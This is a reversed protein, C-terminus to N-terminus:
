SSRRLKAIFYGNCDHLQPYFRQCLDLGRLGASGIFPTQPVVRFDQNRRLFKEIVFENEEPLISCTCYVISGSPEVHGAAENLISYQRSAYENVKGPTITWKMSPNRAFVGSNSCPPDVLITDAELNFPLNRADARIPHASTVGTRNMERRWHSLRRNSIDVSFIEGENHMTEALHSTKNGPAACVDAVISGERPSAVSGAVISALDQVVIEGSEFVKSRVMVNSSKEIRFATDIGQVKSGGLQSEIEMSRKPDPIKLRNLRLFSPLLTLNRRLMELAFARGFTRITREVFWVPHCTELSFRESETLSSEFVSLTGSAILAIAKEFPYVERWGLVQRAWEVNRRIDVDPRHEIYKLYALIELFRIVGHPARQFETRAVARRVTKELRNQFRTTEMILKYAQKLENPQEVGIQGAAKFLASRESIGAYTIWSLAEIAVALSDKTL